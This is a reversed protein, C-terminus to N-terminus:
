SEICGRRKGKERGRGEKNGGTPTGPHAHIHTFSLARCPHCIIFYNSDNGKEGKQGRKVLCKRFLKLMHCHVNIREDQRNLSAKPTHKIKKNQHVSKRTNHTNSSWFAARSCNRIGRLLPSCPQDTGQCQYVKNKLASRM